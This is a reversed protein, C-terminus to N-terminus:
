WTKQALTPEAGFPSCIAKLALYAPIALMSSGPAKNSYHHGASPSVDVTTGHRAVGTDIAFRGEDVMATTLYVRPLENASRMEEFYPFPYLYLFALVAAMAATSRKM